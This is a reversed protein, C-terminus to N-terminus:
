VINIRRTSGFGARKATSQRGLRGGSAFIGVRRYVVSEDSSRGESLMLGMPSNKGDVRGCFGLILLFMSTTRYVDEEYEDTISRTCVGPPRVRVFDRTFVGM